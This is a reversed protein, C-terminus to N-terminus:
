PTPEQCEGLHDSLAKLIIKTIEKIIPSYNCTTNNLELENSNHEIQFTENFNNLSTGVEETCSISKSRHAINIHRILTKIYSYLRSCDKYCCEFRSLNNHKEKLHEFFINLDFFSIKCIKCIFYQSNM